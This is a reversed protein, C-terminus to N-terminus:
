IGRRAFKSSSTGIWGYSLYAIEGRVLMHTAIDQVPAPLPFSKGGDNRTWSLTLPIKHLVSTPDCATRHWAACVKKWATITNPKLPATETNNARPYGESKALGCANLDVPSGGFGGEHTLMCNFNNWTFGLRLLQPHTTCIPTLLADRQLCM